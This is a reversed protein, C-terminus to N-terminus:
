VTLLLLHMQWLQVRYLYMVVARHIRKFLMLQLVPMAVIIIMLLQRLRHARKLLMWPTMSRWKIPDLNLFLPLSAM